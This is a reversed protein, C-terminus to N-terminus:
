IREFLGYASIPNIFHMSAVDLPMDDPLIILAAANAICFQQYCGGTVMENAGKMTRTFAVRKGLAKQAVSGGGSKVM